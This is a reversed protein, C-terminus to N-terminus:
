RELIILEKYGTAKDLERIFERDDMSLIALECTTNIICGALLHGGLTNGQEDSVCIHLHCGDLSCTGNISLIEFDQKLELDNLAKALRIHLKQLCGVSSIIIGARIHQTKCIEQISQKLDAGNHLRVTIIM